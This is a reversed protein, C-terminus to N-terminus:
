AGLIHQTLIDVLKRPSTELFYIYITYKDYTNFWFQWIGDSLCDKECRAKVRGTVNGFIDFEVGGLYVINRMNREIRVQIIIEAPSEEAKKQGVNQIRM